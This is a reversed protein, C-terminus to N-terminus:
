PTLGASREPAERAPPLAGAPDFNKFGDCPQKMGLYYPLAGWHLRFWMLVKRWWSTARSVADPPELADLDIWHVETTGVGELEEQASSVRGRLSPDATDLAADTMLLYESVPVSNKLLRHVVIVDMGALETFRKIKQFAVEGVHSIVKIKLDSVQVCGDCSCVKDVDLETRRALFARRIALALASPDPPRAGAPAYFLAADGELKYLKLKNPRAADIVAELLRAVVVQAHALNIRHVKMFKTYGSIDAILLLARQSAM